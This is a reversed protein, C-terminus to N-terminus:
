EVEDLASYKVIKGDEIVEITINHIPTGLCGMLETLRSFTMSKSKYIPDKLNNVGHEIEKTTKNLIDRSYERYKQQLYEFTLEKRYALKRWLRMILDPPNLADKNYIVKGSKRIYESASLLPKQFLLKRFDEM